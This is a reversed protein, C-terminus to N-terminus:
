NGQGECFGLESKEVSLSMQAGNREGTGCGLFEGPLSRPFNLAQIMQKGDRLENNMAQQGYRSLHQNM